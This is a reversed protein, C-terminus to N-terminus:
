NLTSTGNSIEVEYTEMDINYEAMYAAKIEKLFTEKESRKVLNITCGGFGGGMMRAGLVYDKDRTFDVLFDLEKCSVEYKKSLGDHSGYILEGFKEIDDNNLAECAAVVRNNENIVNSCRDYVVATLDDKVADLMEITCDRLHTVEPHNKQIAKVGTECEIRRTNYESDALSHKVGTNCLVFQHDPFNIPFYDYELSRCDLRFAKNELGMVSAFQDMIGCQVGAYTHEALQAYKVIDLKSVGAEFLENIGYGAACELAASSSMGSGMPVDSTFVCDFGALPFGNEQFQNVVGLIYNAWAKDSVKVEKINGEFHDDLDISYLRIKDSNNKAFGLVMRKEIAAPLVFGDNYDTHEGILNIRGPSGVILPKQSYLEEFKQAVQQVDSM